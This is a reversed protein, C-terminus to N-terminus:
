KLGGELFDYYDLDYVYVTVDPSVKGFLDRVQVGKVFRPNEMVEVVKIVKKTFREQYYKEM